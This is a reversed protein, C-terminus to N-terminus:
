KEKEPNYLVERTYEDIIPIDNKIRVYAVTHYRNKERKRIRITRGQLDYIYGAQKIGVEIRVGDEEAYIGSVEDTLDEWPEDDVKPFSTIDYNGLASVLAIGKRGELYANYLAERFAKLYRPPIENKFARYYAYDYYLIMKIPNERLFPLSSYPYHMISIVLYQKARVKHRITTIWRLVAKTNGSYQLAAFSIDDLILAFKETRDKYSKLYVWLDDFHNQMRNINFYLAKTPQFEQVLWKAINTKGRGELGFISIKPVEEYQLFAKLVPYVHSDYIGM